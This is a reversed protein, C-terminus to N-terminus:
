EMVRSTVRLLVSVRAHAERPRRCRAAPADDGAHEDCADRHDEHGLAHRERSPGRAPEIGCPPRPGAECAEGRVDARPQRERLGHRPALTRLRHLGFEEVHGRQVDAHRVDPKARVARATERRREERLLIVENPRPDGGVHAGRCRGDANRARRSEGRRPEQVESAFRHGVRRGRGCRERHAARRVAPAEAGRHLVVPERAVAVRGDRVRLDRRPWGLDDAAGRRHPKELHAGCAYDGRAFEGEVAADPRADNQAVVALCPRQADVVQDSPQRDRQAALRDVDAPVRVVRGFAVAAWPGGVARKLRETRRVVVRLVGAAVQDVDVRERARSRRGVVAAPVGVCLAVDTVERKGRRRCPVGRRPVGQM